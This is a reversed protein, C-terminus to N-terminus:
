ERFGGEGGGERFGYFRRGERGRKTRVRELCRRPVFGRPHQLYGDAMGRLPEGVAVARERKQVHQLLGSHHLRRSVRDAERRERQTCTCWQSCQPFFIPFFISFFFPIAFYLHHLLHSRGRGRGHIVDRCRLQAGAKPQEVDTRPAHLTLPPSRPLLLPPSLPPRYRAANFLIISNM